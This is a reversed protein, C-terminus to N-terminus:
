PAYHGGNSYNLQEGTLQLGVLLGYQYAKKGNDFKITMSPVTETFTLSTQGPQFDFATALIKKTTVSTGDFTAALFYPATFHGEEGSPPRTARFTIQVQSDTIGEDRDVSCSENVQIIRIDYLEGSPDGQMGPKFQTLQSTSALISAHPCLVRDKASQCASLLLVPLVGCLAIHTFAKM